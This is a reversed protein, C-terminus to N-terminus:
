CLENGVTLRRDFFPWYNLSGFKPRLLNLLPFLNLDNQQGDAMCFIERNTANLTQM